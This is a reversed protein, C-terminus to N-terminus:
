KNFEFIKYGGHGDPLIAHFDVRITFLFLYLILFLITIFMIRIKRSNVFQIKKIPLLKVLAVNLYLVVTMVLSLRRTQEVPMSVFIMTRKNKKIQVVSIAEVDAPKLRTDKLVYAMLFIGIIFGVFMASISPILDKVFIVRTYGYHNVLWTLMNNITGHAEHM